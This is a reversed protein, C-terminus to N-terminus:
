LGGECELLQFRRYSAESATRSMAGPVVSHLATAKPIPRKRLSNSAKTRVVRLKTELGHRSNRCPGMAIILNRKKGLDSLALGQCIWYKM